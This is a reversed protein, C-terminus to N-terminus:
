RDLLARLEERLSQRGAEFVNEFAQRIAVAAIHTQTAVGSEVGPGVVHPLKKAGKWPSKAEIKFM